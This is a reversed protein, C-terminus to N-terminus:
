AHSRRRFSVRTEGLEFRALMKQFPMVVIAITLAFLEHELVALPVPAIRSIESAGMLPLVVYYMNVWVIPGWAIGAALTAFIPIGRFLLAFAIGWFMSVAHHCLLGLIVTDAEFGVVFADSGMFPYSALKLAQWPDGGRALMFLVSLGMVVAGGALGALAGVGVAPVLSRREM